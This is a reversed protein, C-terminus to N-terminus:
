LEICFPSLGDDAPDASSPLTRRLKAEVLAARASQLLALPLRTKADLLWLEHRDVLPFPLRRSNHEVAALLQLGRSQLTAYDASSRVPARRLGDSASWIGFKTDPTQVGTWPDDELTAREGHVYLTWIRGDRSVADAGSIEVVNVVGHFPNLMREAYIEADIM